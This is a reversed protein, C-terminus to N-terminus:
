KVGKFRKQFQGFSIPIVNPQMNLMNRISFPREIEYNSHKKRHALMEKLKRGVFPVFAFVIIRALEPTRLLPKESAQTTNQVNNHARVLIITKANTGNTPPFRM